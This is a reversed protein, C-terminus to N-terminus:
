AMTLAIAGAVVFATGVLIKWTVREIKRLFLAAVLIVFVPTISSLPSVVIVQGLHLATFLCLQGILTSLASLGFFCWARKKNLVLRQHGRQILVLLLLFVLGAANQAATGLIPEPTINLGLKRVVHAVGFAAGASLPFILDRKAWKKEIQGGSEELSIIASGIVMALTGLGITLTLGEGLILVATLASFLPKTDYLPAAISSGVRNIGVFLLLQGFCTGLIGALMFYLLAPSTFLHLPVTVLALGSSVMFLFILTILLGSIMNAERLGIRAFIIGLGYFFASGIALGYVM